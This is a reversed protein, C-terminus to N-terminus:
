KRKRAREAENVYDAFARMVDQWLGEFHGRLSDIANPDLGFYHRAGERAETVIGADRLVKLHQSVAPRSEPLSDALQGVTRPSKRLREVIDRRTGDGLAALM